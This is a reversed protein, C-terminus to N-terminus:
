LCDPKSGDAKYESLRPRGSMDLMVVKAHDSGRKDCLAFEGTNTATSGNMVRGNPRYSFSNPFQSSEITIGQVESGTALITEDANRMQDNDVDHFAIWGKNWGVVQCSAGNSSACIGVRANLTIATNRALHMGAVLENVTGVQKSNMSITKFSPVAVSMLITAVGLTILLEVLSVGRERFM